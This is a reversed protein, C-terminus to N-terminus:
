LCFVSVNRTVLDVVQQFNSEQKQIKCFSLFPSLLSNTVLDAPIITVIIKM